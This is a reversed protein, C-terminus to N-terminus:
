QVTSKVRGFPFPIAGQAQAVFESIVHSPIAVGLDGGVLMTNVGIVAGANAGGASVLSGGSNGPALRADTRLIDVQSGDRTRASGLGSIIGMTFMNRQGWPHGVALVLHGVRLLRADAIAAAPLEAADVQLLALDYAPRQAVLRPSLERGDPLIVKLRGHSVVHYNTVILGDRQWIIGAGVGHRGSQVVVLSRLAQRAVAQMADDLAALKTIAAM